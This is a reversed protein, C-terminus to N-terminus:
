SRGALLADRAIRRVRNSHARAFDVEDMSAPCDGLHLAAIQELAERLRSVEDSPNADEVRASVGPSPSSERSRRLDSAISKIIGSAEDLSFPGSLENKAPSVGGLPCENSHGSQRDDSIHSNCVDCWQGCSVPTDAPFDFEEHCAFKLCIDRLVKERASTEGGGESKRADLIASDIAEFAENAKRLHGVTIAKAMGKYDLAAEGRIRDDVFSFAHAFPRLAERARLLGPLDPHTMSLRANDTM